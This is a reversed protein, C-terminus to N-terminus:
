FAFIQRAQATQITDVPQTNKYANASGTRKM